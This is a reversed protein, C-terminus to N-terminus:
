ICDTSSTGCSCDLVTNSGISTITSSSFNASSTPNTNSTSLTSTGAGGIAYFMSGSATDYRVCNNKTTTTITGYYSQSSVTTGTTPNLKLVTNTTGTVFTYLNGSSDNTLGSLHFGSDVHLKVTTGAGTSPNISVLTDDNLLANLTHTTPNYNLNYITYGTGLGSLTRTSTRVAKMTVGNLTLTMLENPYNSNSQTVAWITGNYSSNITIGSVYTIQVNSSDVVTYVATASGPSWTGSIFNGKRIYANGSTDQELDFGFNTTASYALARNGHLSFVLAILLLFKINM